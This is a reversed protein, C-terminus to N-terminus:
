NYYVSTVVEASVATVKYCAPLSSNQEQNIGKSINGKKTVEESNRFGNNAKDQGGARGHTRM